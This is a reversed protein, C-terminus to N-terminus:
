FYPHFYSGLLTRLHFHLVQRETIGSNELYVFGKTTFAELLETALAELKEENVEDRKISIAFHALDLVPLMKAAM